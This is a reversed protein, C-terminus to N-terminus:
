FGAFLEHMGIDIYMMERMQTASDDSSCRCQVNKCGECRPSVEPIHMIQESSKIQNFENYEKIIDNQVNLHRLEFSKRSIGKSELWSEFTM